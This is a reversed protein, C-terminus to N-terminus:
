TLSLQPSDSSSHCPGERGRRLGGGKRKNKWRNARSKQKDEYDPQLSSCCPDLVWSGPIKKLTNKFCFCTIKGPTRQTTVSSSLLQQFETTM